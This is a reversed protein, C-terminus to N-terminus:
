VTANKKGSIDSWTNEYFFDVTEGEDARLTAHTHHDFNSHIEVKYERLQDNDSVEMEFHVSEGIELVDDQAPEILNIVPKTTDGSECSVYTFVSIAALCLISIFNNTRM